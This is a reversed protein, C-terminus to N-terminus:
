QPNYVNGVFLFVYWIFAKPKLTIWIKKQPIVMTPVMWGRICMGLNLEQCTLELILQKNPQNLNM